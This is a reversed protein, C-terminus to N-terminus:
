ACYITIGQMAAVSAARQSFGVAVSTIMHQVLFSRHGILGNGKPSALPTEGMTNLKILVIGVAISATAATPALVAAKIVSQWPVTCVRADSLRRPRTTLVWLQCVCPVIASNLATLPISMSTGQIVAGRSRPPVPSRKTTITSPLISVTERLDTYV